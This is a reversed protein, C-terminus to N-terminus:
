VPDWKTCAHMCVYLNLMSVQLNCVYLRALPRVSGVFSMLDEVVLFDNHLLHHLDNILDHIFCEM